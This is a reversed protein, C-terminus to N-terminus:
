GDDTSWVVHLRSLAFRASIGILGPAPSLHKLIAEVDQFTFEQKDCFGLEQVTTEILLEAKHQGFCEEMLKVVDAKSRAPLSM